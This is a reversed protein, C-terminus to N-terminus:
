IATTFILIQILIISAIAILLNRQQDREADRFKQPLDRIGNKLAQLHVDRDKWIEIAQDLIDRAQDFFKKM